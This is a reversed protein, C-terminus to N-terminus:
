SSNFNWWDSKKSEKGDSGVAWVRWRGPGKAPFEFSYNTTNIGPVVNSGTSESLWSNSTSDFADIEVTYNAAGSVATWELNTGSTTNDFVTGNPPSLQKPAPLAKSSV